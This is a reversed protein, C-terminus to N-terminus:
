GLFGGAASALLWWLASKVRRRVVIWQGLGVFLGFLMQADLVLKKGEVDEFIGLLTLGAATGVIWLLRFNRKPYDRKNLDILRGIDPTSPNVSESGDLKM